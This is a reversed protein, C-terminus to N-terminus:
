QDSPMLEALQQAITSFIVPGYQMVATACQIGTAGAEIFDYADRGTFIGGVGMIRVYSPLRKYLVPVMKVVLGHIPKGAKGGVHKVEDSGPPKFAIMDVGSRAFRQNPLTNAVVVETVIDTLFVAHAVEGLLVDDETPSLKIGIQKGKLGAAVLRKLIEEVLPPDNCFLPKQAGKDHVNPCALNIEVGDVECAFCALTLEVIEEKSEGVISVWLKKDAAHALTIMKPLLERYTEMGMNNLGLSNGSEGTEIDLFFVDGPAVPKNGERELKTISGVTIRNVASKCFREVDALSKVMGGANGIVLDELNINRM